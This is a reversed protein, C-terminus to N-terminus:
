SEIQASLCRIPVKALSIGNRDPVIYKFVWVALVICFVVIGYALPKKMM